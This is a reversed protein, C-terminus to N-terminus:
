ELARAVITRHRPSSVAIRPAAFGSAEIAEAIDFSFYDDLFPETSKLLALVFPPMRRHADAQPNMDMIALYGGPRLIRRLEAFIDRAGTRPIEHFTLCCSVLDFTNDPLGTREAAAHHWRIHRQQQESRQQAVCLFYPSLDIGTLQADPYRDQLAFTSMGVGCGIDAITHPAPSSTEALCRSLIEHYGQRMRDDGDNGTADPWLNAHVSLAAVEQEIAADWSMNGRDYAHFSSLYYDPYHANPNHIAQWRAAWDPSQGPGTSSQQPQIDQKLKTSHERWPVGLAEARDIIRKRARRKLVAYLPRIALLGNVLAVSLSRSPTSSVSPTVTM